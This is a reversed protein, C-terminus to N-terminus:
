GNGNGERLNDWRGAATSTEILDLTRLAVNAAREANRVWAACGACHTQTFVGRFAADAKELAWDWRQHYAPNM